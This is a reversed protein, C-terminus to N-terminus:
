FVCFGCYIVCLASVCGGTAFKVSAPNRACVALFFFGFFFVLIKQPLPKCLDVACQRGSSFCRATLSSCFCHPRVRWAPRRPGRLEGTPRFTLRFSQCTPTRCTPPRSWLCWAHAAHRPLRNIVLSITLFACM